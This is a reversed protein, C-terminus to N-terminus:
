REDHPRHGRLVRPVEAVDDRTRQGGGADGPATDREGLERDEVILGGDREVAGARASGGPPPRVLEVGECEHRAREQRSRGSHLGPAASSPNGGDSPKPTSPTVRPTARNLSRKSPRECRYLIAFM